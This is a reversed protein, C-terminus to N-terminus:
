CNCGSEKNESKSQGVNVCSDMEKPRNPHINNELVYDLIRKVSEAVNKNNRASTYIYGMFGKDNCFNNTAENDIDEERVLDVKNGVLLCPIPKEDSTYVKDDIDKKWIEVAKFPDSATLDYVVMAAVAQDYYM